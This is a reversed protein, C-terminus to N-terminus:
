TRELMQQLLLPGVQKPEVSNPLGHSQGQIDTPLIRARFPAAAVPQLGRVLEALKWEQSVFHTSRLQDRSILLEEGSLQGAILQRGRIGLLEFEAHVVVEYVSQFERCIVTPLEAAHSVFINPRQPERIAKHDRQPRVSAPSSPCSSATKKGPQSSTGRPFLPQAPARLIPSTKWIKQRHAVRPPKSRDQSHCCM